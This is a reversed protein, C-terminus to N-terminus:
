AGLSDYFSKAQLNHRSVEINNGFNTVAMRYIESGIGLRRHSKSTYIFLTMECDAGREFILGWSVIKFKEKALIVMGIKFKNCFQRWCQGDSYHLYDLQNREFQTILFKSKMEYKIKM